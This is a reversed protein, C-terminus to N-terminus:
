PFNNKKRKLHLSIKVTLKYTSTLPDAKLSFRADPIILATHTSITLKEKRKKNVRNWLVPYDEAYQVSCVFEVTGGIDKIQEQSIYSITPSRQSHVSFFVNSSNM